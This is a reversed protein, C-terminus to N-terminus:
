INVWNRFACEMNCGECLYIDCEGFAIGDKGAVPICTNLLLNCNSCIANDLPTRGAYVCNLKM